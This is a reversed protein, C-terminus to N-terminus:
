HLLGLTRLSALVRPYSKAPVISGQFPEATPSGKCPQVTKIYLDWPQRQRELGPSFNAFAKPTNDFQVM